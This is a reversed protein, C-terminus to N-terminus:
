NQFQYYQEEKSKQFLSSISLIVQLNMNVIHQMDCELGKTESLYHMHNKEIYLVLEQFTTIALIEDEKEIAEGSKIYTRLSHKLKEEYTVHDKLSGPFITNHPFTFYDALYHTVQGLNRYYKTQQNKYKQDFDGSLSAMEKKVMPFTKEMEHKKYLFSPKIDPLISGLYFAFKHKKLKEDNSNLVLFRALSIHSKKRMRSGGTTHMTENYAM